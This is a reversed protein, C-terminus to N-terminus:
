QSTVGEDSQVAVVENTSPGCYIIQLRLREILTRDYSKDVVYIAKGKPGDGSVYELPPFPHKDAELYFNLPSAYTGDGAIDHFPHDRNLRVLFSYVDVTDAGAQYEKFYRGRLCLCFYFALCFMTSLLACQLLRSPLSLAQTSALAALILTCLPLFFIGTRSLPLLLGLARFAIMHLAFSLAVIGAIGFALGRAVRAEKRVPHRPELPQCALSAAGLAGLMPLLKPYLFRMIKFLSGGFRPNIHYLSADILSSVMEGVSHAGYFLDQKRMHTLPYGCIAFVLLLGPLVCALVISTTSPHKMLRSERIAWITLALCAVTDVIGFSFNASLSFGLATSALLCSATLSLRRSVAYRMAIAVAALLFGNAMSYGRAAVMFDMIFPNLTLCTLTAFRRLFRQSITTAISFSAVLYVVTGVLAGARLTIPSPGLLHTATWILLTNLVHNNPYPYFIDARSVFWFYTDAEDLTVSQIQARAVSWAFVFLVVGILALKQLRGNPPDVSLQDERSM